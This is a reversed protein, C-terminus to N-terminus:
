RFAPQGPIPSQSSHGQGAAPGEGEAPPMLKRPPPLEPDAEPGPDPGATPPRTPGADHSPPVSSPAVILERFGSAQAVAAGHRFGDFWDDIARRGDPSQYCVRWYRRPPLPPPQGTGGAELYDAYGRKFGLVYDSSYGLGAHAKKFDNWADGALHYNRSCVLFDDVRQVPENVLNRTANVAINCGSGLACLVPVILALKMRM